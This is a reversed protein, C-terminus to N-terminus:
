GGLSRAVRGHSETEATCVPWRCPLYDHFVADMGVVVFYGNVASASMRKLGLGCHLAVHQPNFDARIAVREQGWPCSCFSKSVAPRMSRKWGSIRPCDCWLLLRRVNRITQVNTMILPDHLRGPLIWADPSQRAHFVKLSPSVCVAGAGLTPTSHRLRHGRLGNWM